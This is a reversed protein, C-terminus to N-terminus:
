EGEVAKLVKILSLGSYLKDDTEIIYVRNTGNTEAARITPPTRGIERELFKDLQDLLDAKEKLKANEEKLLMIERQLCVSKETQEIIIQECGKHNVYKM